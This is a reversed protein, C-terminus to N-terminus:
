RVRGRRAVGLAALGALMLAVSGPEPVAAVGNALRLNDLSVGYYSDQNTLSFGAIDATGGTRAFGYLFDTGGNPDVVGGLDLAEILSGDTRYLRLTVVGGDVDRLQFGLASVPAAFRASIAGFGDADGALPGAGFLATGDADGYDYVGLNAGAAGAMLTLGATPAGFSLSDFWDQAVEGPRPAKVVALEQGDFREGFQVGGSTLLGDITGDALESFTVTSGSIAAYAVTSTPGAHATSAAIGLVLAALTHLRSKM